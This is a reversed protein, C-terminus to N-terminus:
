VGIHKGKTKIIITTIMLIRTIELNATEDETVLYKHRIIRELVITKGHFNTRSM